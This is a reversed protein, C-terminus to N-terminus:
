EAVLYHGEEPSYVRGDAELQQLALLVRRRDVAKCRPDSLVYDVIEDMASGSSDDDGGRQSAMGVMDTSTVRARKAAEAAPMRGLSVTAAGVCQLILPQLVHQSSLIRYETQHPDPRYLLTLLYLLAEIGLFDHTVDLIARLAFEACKIPTFSM